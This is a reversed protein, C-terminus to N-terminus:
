GRTWEGGWQEGLGACASLAVALEEGRDPGTVGAFGPVLRAIDGHVRYGGSRLDDTLGEARERAWRRRRM